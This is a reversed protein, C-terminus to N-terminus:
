KIDLKAAKSLPFPQAIGKWIYAYLDYDAINEPLVIGETLVKTEEGGSITVLTRYLKNNYLGGTKKRVGIIVSATITDETQNQIDVEANVTNEASKIIASDLISIENKTRFTYKVENDFKQGVIAKVTPKVSVNYTTGPKLDVGTLVVANKDASAEAFDLSKGTSDTIKVSDANVSDPELLYNMQVRVTSANGFNVDDEYEKLLAMDEPVGYYLDDFYVQAENTGDDGDNYADAATAASWLFGYNLHNGGNWPDDLGIFRYQKRNNADGYINAFSPNASYLYDYTQTWDYGSKDEKWSGTGKLQASLAGTLNNGEDYIQVSNLVPHATEQNTCDVANIYYKVHYWKGKEYSCVKNGDNVIGLYINGKDFTLADYVSGKKLASDTSEPRDTLYWLTNTLFTGNAEGSKWDMKEYDSNQTLNLRVGEGEEDIRIWASIERINNVIDINNVGFFDSTPFNSNRPKRGSPIMFLAYNTEGGREVPQVTMDRLDMKQDYAVSSVSTFGYGESENWSSVSVGDALTEAKIDYLGWITQSTDGPKRDPPYQLEGEETYQNKYLDGSAYVTTHSAAGNWEGFNNIYKTRTPTGSNANYCENTTYPVIYKDFNQSFQSVQEKAFAAPPLLIANASMAAALMVMTVKKM